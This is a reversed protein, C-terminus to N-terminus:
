IRELYRLMDQGEEETAAGTTILIGKRPLGELTSALAHIDDFCQLVLLKNKELIKEYIPRWRVSECQPNGSGPVWQIGDLDDIELLIDLHAIQGPGDLHYISHNLRSCQTAVDPLVFEEFQQPSLMACFDCQLPYWTDPCWIGMWASM